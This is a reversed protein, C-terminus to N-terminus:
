RSSSCELRLGQSVFYVFLLFWLEIIGYKKERGGYLETSDDGSDIPFYAGAYVHVSYVVFVAAVAVVAITQLIPVFIMTPMSVFAKCAELVITIATEIRKCMCCIFCLWLAQEHVLFHLATPTSNTYIANPQTM